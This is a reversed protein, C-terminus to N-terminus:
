SILEVDLRSCIEAIDPPLPSNTIITSLDSFDFTRHFFQKGFKSDDAMLVTKDAYEMFARKIQSNGEDYDTVASSASIGRCSVFAYDAHHRSVYAIADSGTLALLSPHLVGCTTYVTIGPAPALICAAMIGNTLVTLGSIEALRKALAISTSSSDLFLTQGPAIMDIALDAIKEKQSMNDQIKYRVPWELQNDNLPCAGGRTRYILGEAHLKALDRRITAESVYLIHSLQEVSCYKKENLLKLIEQNRAYTEM